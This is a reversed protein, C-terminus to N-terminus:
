LTAQIRKCEPKHRKWDQVQCERSCYCITKCGVCVSTGLVDCAPNGCARYKKVLTTAQRRWDSVEDAAYIPLRAKDAQLGLEYYRRAAGLQRPGQVGYLLVLRYCAEPLKRADLEARQVYAELWIRAQVIDDTLVARHFLTHEIDGCGMQAARTYASVAASKKVQIALFCGECAHLAADQPLLHQALRLLFIGEDTAGQSFLLCARIVLADARVSPDEDRKQALEEFVRLVEPILRLDWVVVLSNTRYAYGFAKAATRIDGQELADHGRAASLASTLLDRATKSNEALSALQDITDSFDKEGRWLRFAGLMLEGSSAQAPSQLCAKKLRRLFRKQEKEDGFIQRADDVVNEITSRM